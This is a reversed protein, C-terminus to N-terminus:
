GERLLRQFNLMYVQPQRGRRMLLEGKRKQKLIDLMQLLEKKLLQLKLELKMRLRRHRQDLALFNRARKMLLNMLLVIQEETPPLLKQLLLTELELKYLQATARLLLFFCLHLV